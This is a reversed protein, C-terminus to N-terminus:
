LRDRSRVYWTKMSGKGKIEVTGRSECEFEDSVLEYTSESIQVHGSEATSEMRSAVNVTDGWIDYRFKSTGIVGAVVPGSNIGFRFKLRKGDRAPVASVAEIMDICCRVAAQAHDTRRDPVGSGAMYGDGATHLQELGHREVCQDLATFVENLWDVVDGPNMAAFISTSDVVDTFVVSVSDFREARTTGTRKLDEAIKPPLVNLLLRNAAARGAVSSHAFYGTFSFVILSMFGLNLTFLVQKTTNSVFLAQDRLTSEFSVILIVGGIFITLWSVSQRISLFTLAVLPGVFAWLMVLGSDFLGGVTVQIAFTIGVISVIQGYVAIYHNKLRHAIILASGVIVTFLLPLFTPLEWGFIGWYITSWVLGAISCSGSVLLIAIKESRVDETDTTNRAFGSFRRATEQALSKGIM